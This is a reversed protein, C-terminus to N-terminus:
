FSSKVHSMRLNKIESEFLRDDGENERRRDFNVTFFGFSLVHRNVRSSSSRERVPQYIREWEIFM